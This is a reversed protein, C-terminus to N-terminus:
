YNAQFQRDTPMIGTWYLVFLEGLDPTIEILNRAISGQVFLDMVALLLLPKHPARHQTAEAWRVSSADTRLKAFKRPYHEFM